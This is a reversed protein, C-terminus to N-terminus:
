ERCVQLPEANNLVFEHIWLCVEDSLLRYRGNRKIVENNIAPKEKNDWVRRESEYCHQMYETCFEMIEDMIYGQTM